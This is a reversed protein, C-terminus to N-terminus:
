GALNLMTNFATQPQDFLKYRLVGEVGDVEGETLILLVEPNLIQALM